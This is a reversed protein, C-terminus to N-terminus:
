KGFMQKMVKYAENIYNIFTTGNESTLFTKIESELNHTRSSESVNNWWELCAGYVAAIANSYASNVKANTLPWMFINLVNDFYYNENSSIALWGKEEESYGNYTLNSINQNEVLSLIGSYPPNVLYSEKGEPYSYTGDHNNVWHVGEVGYKCLNYNDASKYMWNVFNLIQKTKTSTSLICAAFPSVSAAEFSKREGGKELALGGLVTFEANANASKCKRAVKILHQITPDLVFVGTKEGVFNREGAELLITQWEQSYLGLKSWRNELQITKLYEDTCFGPVVKGDKFGYKFYGANGYPGVTLVKEIDWVAGTIVHNLNYKQKMALCMNEFTTINDVFELGDKAKAEDDTYGCEEMWDKRVLIGYKKNNVVSPIGIVEGKDNTLSYLPDGEIYNMLNPAYDELDLGIDKSLSNKMVYDDIGDGGKTHSICIDIAGGSSITSQIKTKMDQGLYSIKFKLNNGTDEYYKDTIARIAEEEDTGKTWSYESSGGAYIVIETAAPKNGGGSSSDGGNNNGGCSALSAMVLVLMASNLLKKM